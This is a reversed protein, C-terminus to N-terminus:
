VNHMPPFHRLLQRTHVSLDAALSAVLPVNNTVYSPLVIFKSDGRELRRVQKEIVTVGSGTGTPDNYVTWSRPFLAHYTTRGEMGNETGWDWGKLSTPIEGLPEVSLVTSKCDLDEGEM